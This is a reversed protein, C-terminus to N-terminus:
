KTRRYYDMVVQCADKLDKGFAILGEEHGGLVAIKKKQFDTTFFLRQIDFALEPTGYGASRITTPLRNLYRRWMKKSHIHIVAGIKEDCEYLAAHTMSESSAKIPGICRLKNKAIDYGVVRSYHSEDLKRMNGTATGTIIFGKADRMSLNGYGVKNPYAGILRLRFLRQRCISLSAIKKRGIPRTKQFDCDFKMYGEEFARNLNLDEIIRRL